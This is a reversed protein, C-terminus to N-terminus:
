APRGLAASSSQSASIKESHGSVGPELRGLGEDVWAAGRRAYTLVLPSLASPARATNARSHAPATATAYRSTRSVYEADPPQVLQSAEAASSEELGERVSGAASPYEDNLGKALDTLLRTAVKIDTAQYPRRVVAQM